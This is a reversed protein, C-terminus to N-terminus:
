KHGTEVWCISHEAFFFDPVLHSRSSFFFLPPHVTWWLGSSYGGPPV